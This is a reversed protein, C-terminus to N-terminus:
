IANNIINCLTIVQSPTNFSHLCVRIREAGRPVTPYLIAKAYIGGKALQAAVRKARDNGPIIVAQIPGQGVMLQIVNNTSLETEMIKRLAHITHVDTVKEPLLNYACKIWVLNHMPLATTYIFSRSFNILFERLVVSGLVIAGHGGLAKGFTHVRAFCDNQLGLQAIRGEGKTGFIGTAHAEDVILNAGYQKCLAIMETLPALDGDMSFLSETAIYINNAKASKLLRELDALDNHKFAQSNARGMKIGDRISAHVLEDFLVWDGPQPVSSFLGLNADYGSNYILGAEALHFAAIHAELAEYYAHNGAILRSGTAGEPLNAYQAYERDVCEKLAISRAFGLYDNSAFDILDTHISLTRISLDDRRKQLLAELTDIAKNM